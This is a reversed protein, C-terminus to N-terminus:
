RAGSAATKMRHQRYEPEEIGMSAYANLNLNAKKGNLLEYYAQAGVMAANDSCLKLNPFFVEWNHEEGQMELERRLLSNASVGGAIAIKNYNLTLAAKELNQILYKVITKRVSASIDQTPIEANKQKLNNIKNIVSTKIGSFSFDYISNKLQPIPFEFADMNGSDASKDLYVGGPYPFGLCRASKDFTEGAADDITKGIIKMDTYTKVEIINTHGGSVVLCIFPPKLEKHSLYNSAIHAKIHHVPVLPIGLSLSLGKAFSLGVLLSGILGPAYTVAVASIDTKKLNSKEFVLRTLDGIAELHCRSAIEPVVGGFIEHKKIQSFTEMSVIEKGDRVIAVSTDDCSSEIALINM